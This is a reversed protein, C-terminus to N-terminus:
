MEIVANLGIQTTKNDPEYSVWGNGESIKESDGVHWFEYYPELKAAWRGFDKKLNASFRYGFGGGQKYDRDEDGFGAESTRTDAHGVLLLDYEARGGFTWSRALETDASFGVPLYIYQINRTYTGTGETKEHLQRVGLGALWSYNVASESDIKASWFVRTNSLYNHSASTVKEGSQYQGDYTIDGALYDFEGRISGPAFDYTYSLGFGDLMGYDTMKPEEYQTHASKVAVELGLTAKSVVPQPVRTTIESLTPAHEEQCFAQESYAALLTVALAFAAAFIITKV